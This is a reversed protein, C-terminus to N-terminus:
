VKKDKNYSFWRVINILFLIGSAVFFFIIYRLKVFSESAFNRVIGHYWELLPPVSLYFFVLLLFNFIVSILPYEKIYIWGSITLIMLTIVMWLGISVLPYMNFFPLIMENNKYILATAFAYRSNSFLANQKKEFVFSKTEDEFPVSLEMEKYSPFSVFLKDYSLIKDSLSIVVDYVAKKDVRGFFIRINETENNLSLCKRLLFRDVSILDENLTFDGDIRDQFYSKLLLEKNKYVNIPTDDLLIEGKNLVIIRDSLFAEDVHHTVSIITMDPNEKKMMHTLEVIEKRGKPDLMATAEDLLLISPKM